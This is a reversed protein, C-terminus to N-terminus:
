IRLIKIFSEPTTSNPSVLYQDSKPNLLNFCLYLSTNQKNELGFNPDGMLVEWWSGGGVGRGWILSKSDGLFSQHINTGQTEQRQIM